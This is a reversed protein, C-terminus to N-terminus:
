VVITQINTYALLGDLAHEVGIGSQKHGGFAVNPSLIQISNLWVTGCELREAVAKAQNVNRGWVSAALGYDSHNARQVVEDTDKFKMLPLVPGFAEEAVVRSDEPPNDIITIPVFYGPGKHPEGGLLFRLGESKASEILNQVRQFQLRNQLPGLRIGEEAGNGMKVTRAYNVLARSFAEYIDEHIYVRKAAICVQGSNRFAGWFVKEATAPIDVDPLVIAPDNGGLELTIRKLNQAASQMVRRGTVTSGTFAIKGIGPHESIWPGLRDGGTIVNWVGGPLLDRLMEGIKLVCLPTFPSPKLIVTNGALLAPAVKWVGLAVPFNWPTIAGVVGIPVHRSEFKRGSEDEYITVPLEKKAFERFWLASRAIEAKADALPKGQERTMLAALHDAVAEFREAIARLMEKRDNIPRAKWTSFARTASTVAADLQDHSCDPVSAILEETAPNVVPLSEPSTASKGDITMCYDRDFSISMGVTELAAGFDKYNIRRV